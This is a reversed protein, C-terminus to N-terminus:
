GMQKGGDKDAEKNYGKIYELLLNSINQLEALAQPIQEQPVESEGALIQGIQFYTEGLQKYDDAKTRTQEVTQVCIRTDGDYRNEENLLETKM